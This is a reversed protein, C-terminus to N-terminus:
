RENEPERKVMLLKKIKFYILRLTSPELNDVNTKVVMVKNQDFQVRIWSDWGHGLFVDFQHHEYELPKIFM